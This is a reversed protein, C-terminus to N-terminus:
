VTDVLESRVHAGNLQTLAHMIEDECTAPLSEYEPAAEFASGVAAAALAVHVRRTAALSAPAVGTAFAPRKKPRSVEARAEAVPETTPEVETACSPRKLM